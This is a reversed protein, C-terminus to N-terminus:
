PNPGPNAPGLPAATANNITSSSVSPLPYRRGANLRAVPPAAETGTSESVSAGEVLDHPDVIMVRLNADNSLTMSPNWTGPREMPDACSALFVLIIPWYWPSM